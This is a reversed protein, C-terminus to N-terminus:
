VMADSEAKFTMLIEKDSDSLTSWVVQKLEKDGHELLKTVSWLRRSEKYLKMEVTPNM